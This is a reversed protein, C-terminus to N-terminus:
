MFALVASVLFLLTLPLGPTGLRLVWHGGPQAGAMVLQEHFVIALVVPVLFAVWLVFRWKALFQRYNGRGYTLTFVLWTGPLFSMAGFAFSQWYAVTEPLLAEASLGLCFSEFALVLMGAAFSLHPVTPKTRCVTALGMGGALLASCLSLLFELSM